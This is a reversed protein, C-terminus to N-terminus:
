LFSANHSPQSHAAFKESPGQSLESQGVGRTCIQKRTAHALASEGLEQGLDEARTAHSRESSGRASPQPSQRRRPFFSLALGWGVQRVRCPLGQALCHMRRFATGLGASENKTAGNVAFLGSTSEPCQAFKKAQAASRKYHFVCFTIYRYKKM